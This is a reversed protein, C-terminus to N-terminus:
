AGHYDQKPMFRNQRLEIKRKMAEGLEQNGEEVSMEAVKIGKKLFQIENEVELVADKTQKALEEKM